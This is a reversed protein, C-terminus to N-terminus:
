QQSFQFLIAIGTERKGHICIYIYIIRMDHIVHTHMCLPMGCDGHKLLVAFLVSRCFVGYVNADQVLDDDIGM